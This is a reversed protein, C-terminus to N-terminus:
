AKKSYNIEFHKAEYDFVLNSIEKLIEEEKSNKECDILKDVRKLAIQYDEESNIPNM